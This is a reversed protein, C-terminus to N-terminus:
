RKARGTQCITVPHSIVSATMLQATAMKKTTTVPPVCISPRLRTTSM